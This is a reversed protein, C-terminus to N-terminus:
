NSFTSRAEPSTKWHSFNSFTGLKDTTAKAYTHEILYISGHNPYYTARDNMGAPPAGGSRHNNQL